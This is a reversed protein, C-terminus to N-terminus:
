TWLMIENITEIGIIKTRRLREKRLMNIAKYTENLYTINGSLRYLEICTKATKIAMEIQERNM